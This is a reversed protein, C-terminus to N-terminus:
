DIILGQLYEALEQRTAQETAMAKKKAEQLNEIQTEQENLKKMLRGYLESNNNVTRMNERIRQQEPAFEAIQQTLTQELNQAEHLRGEIEAAKALAGKVKESLPSDSSVALLDRYNDVGVAQVANSTRRHTTIFEKTEGAKLDMKFRLFNPSTQWPKDSEVLEWEPTLKPQEIVLVKDAKAKSVAKYTQKVSMVYQRTVVGKSVKISTLNSENKTGPTTMLVDLDIGYGLLRDQGPPLNDFRADGAFGGGGELVTVPGAPLFKTGKNVLYVGNLPNKDFNSTNYFSIKMAELPESLIPIMASSQRAISVTPVTYEFLEGLNKADATPAISGVFNKAKDEEAPAMASDLRDRAMGSGLQANQMSRAESKRLTPMPAAAVALNMVAGSEAMPATVVPGFDNEVVPRNVYQPSYLEQVFSLPRGSVLSLSVDKWDSQTQNDVIAWGIMTAPGKDALVLRYSVKWVPASVVYGVRVSREGKGSLSLTVPKSDTSSATALVALARAFDDQLKADTLRLGTIAPLEIQRLVGGALLTMVGTAQKGKDTVLERTEVGVVTGTVSQGVAEVVVEQGRMQSVLGSMGPNGSLNIRFSGLQMNLPNQSPYSAASITGGGSDQVLLSKLVDNLQETKFPLALTSDGTVKGEHQFYGVGATYLVVKNIPVVAAPGAAAAPMAVSVAEQALASRAPDLLGTLAVAAAVSLLFATRSSSTRAHPNKMATSNSVGAQLFNWVRTPNNIRTFEM